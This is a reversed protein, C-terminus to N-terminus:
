VGGNESTTDHEDQWTDWDMDIVPNPRDQDEEEIDDLFSMERIRLDYGQINTKFQKAYKEAAKKEKFFGVSSDKQLVQYFKNSEKM